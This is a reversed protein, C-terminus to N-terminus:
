TLEFPLGTENFFGTILDPRYQVRKLRTKIIANLADLGTVALNGLGNRLNAWIGEAPNLEPAYAPPRYVTLWDRAAIYSQMARSIHTNLNDWVLIIPAGLQQHAADLLDAYDREAM